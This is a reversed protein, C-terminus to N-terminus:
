NNKGRIRHTRVVQPKHINFSIENSEGKETWKQVAIHATHGHFSMQREKDDAFKVIDAIIEKAVDTLERIRDEAEALKDRLKVVEQFAALAVVGMLPHEGGLIGLANNEQNNNDM